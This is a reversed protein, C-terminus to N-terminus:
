FDIWKKLIKLNTLIYTRLTTESSKWPTQKIEGKADSKVSKPKKEGLKTLNSLPRDIKNIIEFFWSKTENIRQM